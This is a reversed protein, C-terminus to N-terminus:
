ETAMTLDKNGKKGAGMIVTHGHWPLQCPTLESERLFHRSCAVVLALWAGRGGESGGEWKILLYRGGDLSFAESSEVDWDCVAM